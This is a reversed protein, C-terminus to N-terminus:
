RSIQPFNAESLPSGDDFNLPAPASKIGWAELCNRQHYYPNTTITKFNKFTATYNTQYAYESM